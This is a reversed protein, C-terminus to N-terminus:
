HPWMSFIPLSLWCGRLDMTTTRLHPGCKCLSSSSSILTHDQGEDNDRDRALHDSLNNSKYSIEKQPVSERRAPWAEATEEEWHSIGPAFEM